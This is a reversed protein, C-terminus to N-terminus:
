KKKWGIKLIFRAATEIITRSKSKQYEEYTQKQSLKEVQQKEKETMERGEDHANQVIDKATSLKNNQAQKYQEVSAEVEDGYLRDIVGMYSGWVAEAGEKAIWAAMLTSFAASFPMLLTGVGTGINDIAKSAVWIDLADRENQQLELRISHVKDAKRKPM